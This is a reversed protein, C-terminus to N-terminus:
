KYEVSPDFTTQNGGLDLNLNDYNAQGGQGGPQDPAIIGAAQGRKIIENMLDNNIIDTEGLQKKKLSERISKLEMDRKEKTYNYEEKFYKSIKKEMAKKTMGSGSSGFLQKYTDKVEKKDMSKGIQTIANSFSMGSKIKDAFQPYQLKLNEIKQTENSKQIKGAMSEISDGFTIGASPNELILSRKWQVEGARIGYLTEAEQQAAQLASQAVQAQRAIAGRELARQENSTAQEGRIVNMSLPQNAIKSYQQETGTDFSQLQGYIDQYKKNLDTIGLENQIQSRIGLLDDPAPAQNSINATSYVGQPNTNIKGFGALANEKAGYKNYWEGINKGYYKDAVVDPRTEKIYQEQNSDLAM